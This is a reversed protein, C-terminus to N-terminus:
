NFFGPNGARPPAQYTGTNIGVFFPDSTTTYSNPGTTPAQTGQGLFRKIMALPTDNKFGSYVLLSGGFFMLLPIFRLEEM